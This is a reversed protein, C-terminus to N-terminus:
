VEDNKEKIMPEPLPMWAYVDDKTYEGWEIDSDYWYAKKKKLTKDREECEWSKGWWILDIIPTRPYCISLSCVLYRGEKKPKVAPYPMWRCENKKMPKQKECNPCVMRGEPVIEGCCICRDESM